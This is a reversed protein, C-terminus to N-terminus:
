KHPEPISKLIEATCRGSFRIFTEFQDAETAGTQGDSYFDVFGTYAGFSNKANVSGRVMVGSGCREVGQFQASSPDKLTSRMAAEAREVVEDGCGSLLFSLAGATAVLSIRNTM